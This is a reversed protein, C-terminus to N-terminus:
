LSVTTCCIELVYEDQVISVEHGNNLLEGNPLTGRLTTMGGVPYVNLIMPKMKNKIKSDGQKFNLKTKYDGSINVHTLSM